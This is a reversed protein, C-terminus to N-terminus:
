HRRPTGGSSTSTARLRGPEGSESAGIRHRRRWTGFALMGAVLLAFAELWGGVVDSVFHVGLGVRDFGTLLVVFVGAAVALVRRRGRLVPLVVALIIGVGLASNLAHSSPFSHQGAMAVPDDFVPRARAVVLKLAVNLVSGVAMTTVAWVASRRAGARWLLAAVILVALRFIWPTTVESVVELVEVVQPRQLAWTNLVDAVAGDLRLLARNGGAVLSLVVLFPTAALM